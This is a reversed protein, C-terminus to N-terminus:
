HSQAPPFKALHDAVRRDLEPQWQAPMVALVMADIRAIDALQQTTAAGAKAARNWMYVKALDHPRLAGTQPDVPANAYLIATPLYAPAYGEMAAHELWFRAQALDADGGAGEGLMVGLRYQAEHNHRQAAQDYWYRALKLNQPAQTGERYLDALRLMAPPSEAQAAATCLALGQPVDRPVITGAIYLEGASCLAYPIGATGAARYWQLAAQGDVARGIGRAFCDGLYQQAAPINKRAAKDFWACAATPNAPRGWGEHEFLGLTFQALPSDAALRQFAPYAKGYDGAALAQQAHALAKDRGQSGQPAQPVQPAQPTQAQVQAAWLLALAFGVARLMM